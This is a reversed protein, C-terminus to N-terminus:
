FIFVQSYTAQIILFTCRGELFNVVTCFQEIAKDSYRRSVSSLIGKCHRIDQLM